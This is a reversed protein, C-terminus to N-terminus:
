DDVYSVEMGQRGNGGQNWIKSDESIPEMTYNGYFIQFSKKKKEFICGLYYEKAIFWM